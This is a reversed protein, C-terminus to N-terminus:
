VLKVGLMYCEVRCQPREGADWLEGVRKKADAETSFVGRILVFRESTGQWTMKVDASDRVVIWAKPPNM